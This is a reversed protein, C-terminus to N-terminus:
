FNNIQTNGLVSIYVSDSLFRPVGNLLFPTGAAMIVKWPSCLSVEPAWIGPISFTSTRSVTFRNLSPIGPALHPLWGGENTLM